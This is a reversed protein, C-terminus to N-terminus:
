GGWVIMETGTWVATHYDRASPLEHRHFHSDLRRRRSQISGGINSYSSSASQGGWVIMVKDTDDWVATHNYIASPCNTGISTATWANSAPAYQGGTNTGYPSTSSAYGGWVIMVQDISDWVATHGYRGTPCNTGTSTATWSNTSPTYRGGTSLLGGSYGGWVIMQTGTWVATHFERATPCNTTSTATWSDSSPNYRGGTNRFHRSGHGGWVIMETGTWVATHYERADPCGAGISTPTWSDTSPNYRGGTNRDSDLDHGGWVIMETGTWIATDNIREATGTSTATWSDTSPAYRGGTNYTGTGNIGGGGWVIMVQDTADWVATAYTRISPCNAGTSTATWSDNIPDYLGGTNLCGYTSLNGGWVIM